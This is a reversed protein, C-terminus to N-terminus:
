LLMVIIENGKIPCLISCYEIQIRRRAAILTEKTKAIGKGIQKNEKSTLMKVQELWCWFDIFLLLMAKIYSGISGCQQQHHYLRPPSNWEFDWSLSSSSNISTVSFSIEVM